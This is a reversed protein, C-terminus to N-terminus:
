NGVWGGVWGSTGGGGGEKIPKEGKGKGGFNSLIRGGWLHPFFGQGKLFNPKSRQNRFVPWVPVTKDTGSM